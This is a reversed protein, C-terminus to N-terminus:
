GDDRRPTADRGDLILRDGEHRIDIRQPYVGARRDREEDQHVERSRDGHGRIYGRRYMAYLLEVLSLEALKAVGEHQLRLYEDGFAVEIRENVVSM